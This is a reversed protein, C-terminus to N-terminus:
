KSEKLQKYTNRIQLRVDECRIYRKSVGCAYRGKDPCKKLEICIPYMPCCKCLEPSNVKEKFEAIKKFNNIGGDLTGVFEDESFHECKGLNGYPTVTICSSSDAMCKSVRVNKRLERLSLLNKEMCYKQLAIMDKAFALEVDDDIPTSFDADFLLHPYASFKDMGKYREALWGVLEFLDEKNHVGMNMRVVVSVGKKLLSEINDTVIVFPNKDKANMYAKTKNYVEQTGDITIQVNKINWKDVAKDVTNQDFLFGNSTFVSKFEIGAKTLYDTIIDIVKINCLPEGGFWALRVPKGKCNNKIFEATKLAVDESMYARPRGMEYCYFCRANCDMTTFITYSSIGKEKKFVSVIDRLGDCLQIDDNDIPVLFWKEILAKNSESPMVSDCCLAQYECEELEVIEGTLTNYAVHEGEIDEIFCFSICRYLKDSIVEQTSLFTKATDIANRVTKM